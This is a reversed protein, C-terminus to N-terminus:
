FTFRVMGRVGKLNKQIDLHLKHEERGQGDRRKPRTMVMVIDSSYEIRGTGILGDMDKSSSSGARSRSSILSVPKGDRRAFRLVQDPGITSEFILGLVLDPSLEQVEGNTDRRTLRAGVLAHGITAESIPEGASLTEYILDAVTRFPEDFAWAIGALMGRAQADGKIAAALVIAQLTEADDIPALTSTTNM